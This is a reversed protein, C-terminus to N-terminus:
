DRDRDSDSDSDCDRVEGVSMRLWSSPSSSWTRPRDCLVSWRHCAPREVAMSSGRINLLTESVSHRRSSVLLKSRVPPNAIENSSGKRANSFSCCSAERRLMWDGAGPLGEGAGKVYEGAGELQEEAGDICGVGADRRGGRGLYTHVVEAPRSCTAVKGLFYYLVAHLGPSFIVSAQNNQQKTLGRLGFLVCPLTVGLRM